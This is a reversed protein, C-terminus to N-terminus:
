KRGHYMVWCWFVMQSIKEKEFCRICIWSIFDFWIGRTSGHAAVPIPEMTRYVNFRHTGEPCCFPKISKQLLMRLMHLETRRPLWSQWSTKPIKPPAFRVPHNVLNRPPHKPGLDDMLFYPKEMWKLGDTKPTKVGRNKPFVWTANVHQSFQEDGIPALELKVWRLQLVALDLVPGDATTQWLRASGIRAAQCICISIRYCGPLNPYM